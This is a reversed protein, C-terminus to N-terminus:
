QWFVPSRRLSVMAHSFAGLADCCVELWIRGRIRLIQRDLSAAINLMNKNFVSGIGRCVSASVSRLKEGCNRICPTEEANRKFKSAQMFERGKAYM